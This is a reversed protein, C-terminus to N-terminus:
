AESDILCLPFQASLLNGKAHKAVIKGGNFAVLRDTEADCAFVGIRYVPLIPFTKFHGEHSHSRGARSPSGSM